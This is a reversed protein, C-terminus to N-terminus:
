NIKLKEKKWAMKNVSHQWAEEESNAKTADWNLYQGTDTRIDKGDYFATPYREKIIEENTMTKQSKPPSPTWNVQKAITLQECVKNIEALTASWTDDVKWFSAAHLLRESLEPYDEFANRFDIYGEEQKKEPSINLPLYQSTEFEPISKSYESFDLYKSYNEGRANNWIVGDFSYQWVVDQRNEISTASILCDPQDSIPLYQRTIYKADLAKAHAEYLEYRPYREYTDENENHWNDDFSTDTFQWVVDGFKEGPYDGPALTPDCSYTHQNAFSEFEAWDEKDYHSDWWEYSPLDNKPRVLHDATVTWTKIQQLTM